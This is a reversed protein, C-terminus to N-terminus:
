ESSAQAMSMPNRAESCVSAAAELAGAGRAVGIAEMGAELASLMGLLMHANVHGMHALRFAGAAEPDQLTGMGLGIGLTVGMNQEVWKRLQSGYRADCTVTTVAHSRKSKLEINAALHGTAGWKALAAWVARALIAHRSTAQELGEEYLLMNLSERLGFLHQTPATGCFLMYFEEPDIRRNWDWYPTRLDARLGRERARENFFVFGLGPPTMLGKQSGGVVVDVGWADMEFRECALSAICDVMLLAPHGTDRMKRALDVIDNRVSSATDVHVALVAKISHSADRALLAAVREIDIDHHRGFDMTEVKVGLSSATDGWGAGFLGTNLALIKEGRSLVNTLSAEWVGHGNAIYITAHGNTKAVQKLDSLITHVMEELDSSYINPAPRHMASLVRDPIVSPGPIAVFHRGFGLTM